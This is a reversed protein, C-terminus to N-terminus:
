GTAAGSALAGDGVAPTQWDVRVNVKIGDRVSATVTCYREFVDECRRTATSEAGVAPRIVVDIHDIRPHGESNPAVVSVVETACSRVDVHAHRLSELLSASLCHGVAAALLAPTAPASADGVPDPEDSWFAAGHIAGDESAQTRFRYRKEHDLDVRFRRETQNRMHMAGIVEVAIL